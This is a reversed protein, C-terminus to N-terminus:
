RQVVRFTITREDTDGQATTWRLTVSAAQGVTGGSVRCLAVTGTIAPQDATIGAQASIACGALSDGSALVDRVDVGYRLVAAPDKDIQLAGNVLTYSM